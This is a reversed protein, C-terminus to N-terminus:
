WKCKETQANGNEAKANLTKGIIIMMKNSKKKKKKLQESRIRIPSQVVYGSHCLWFIM